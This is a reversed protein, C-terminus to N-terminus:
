NSDAFQSFLRDPLRRFVPERRPLDFTPAEALVRRSFGRGRRFGHEAVRHTNGVHTVLPTRNPTALGFERGRVGPERIERNCAL